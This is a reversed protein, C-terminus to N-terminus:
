EVESSRVPRARQKKRWAEWTKAGCEREKLDCRGQQRWLVTGDSRVALVERKSSKKKHWRPEWTWGPLPAATQNDPM